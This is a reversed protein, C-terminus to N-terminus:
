AEQAKKAIWVQAQAIQPATWDTIDAEFQKASGNIADEWNEGLQDVAFEQVKLIAIMHKTEGDSLEKSSQTRGKSLEQCYEHRYGAWDDGFIKVGMRHMNRYAAADDDFEVEPQGPEENQDDTSPQVPEGSLWDIIIGAIEKGPKAFVRGHLAPCRTKQVIANNDMDMDLLIDFEYEFGDRQIPAMGVKRPAQKGRSNTEVVYESKSRMTGIVNIDTQVIANVLSNYLPTGEKWAMFSNGSKTRKATEDVFDLIGGTGQWAHSLSDIIITEYRATAAESIASLFKEMTFPAHMEAVDFEFLDAYKSASGSETDIFAIPGGMASAIALASYTKGSGSPGIIALRLKSEQKTARTFLSM